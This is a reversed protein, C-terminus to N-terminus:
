GILRCPQSRQALLEVLVQGVGLAGDLLRATSDFGCHRGDRLGPCRREGCHRQTCLLALDYALEESHSFLAIHDGELCSDSLDRRAGRREIRHRAQEVVVDGLDLVVAEERVLGLARDDEDPRLVVPDHGDDLGDEVPISARAIVRGPALLRCGCFLRLRAIAAQAGPRAYTEGPGGVRNEELWAQGKPSVRAVEHPRQALKEVCESRPLPAPRSGARRRWATADAGPRATIEFPIIWSTRQSPM